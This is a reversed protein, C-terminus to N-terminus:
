EKGALLLDIYYEEVFLDPSVGALALFGKIEGLATKVYEEEESSLLKEVEIFRGLGRVTCIEVTLGRYEYAGGEKFKRVVESAGFTLIFERFLDADSVSFEREENVEAKGIRSKNKFTIWTKDEQKRIRFSTRGPSGPIKYYVDEKKIRGKYRCLSKVKEEIEPKNDIRAKIEVELHM